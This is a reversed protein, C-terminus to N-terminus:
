RETLTKKGGTLTVDVGKEKLIRLCEPDCGSDTIVHDIRNIGAVLTTTRRNIKSSDILLFTEKACGCMVKEVSANAFTSGYAGIEPDFGDCSLFLKDVRLDKFLGAASPGVIYGARSHIIGSNIWLEINQNKQLIEAVLFSDTYVTGRKLNDFQRALEAVTTGSGLAITDGDEIFRRAAVAIMRKAKVNQNNKRYIPEEHGADISAAGGYKRILLGRKEMSALQRRVSSPAINFLESLTDTSVTHQVELLHLIYEERDKISVMNEKITAM